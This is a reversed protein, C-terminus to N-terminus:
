SMTRTPKQRVTMVHRSVRRREPNLVHEALESDRDKQPKDKLLFVYDFRDLLSAVLDVQGMDDEYDDFRSHIPNGAALLSTECKLTANIGAKNIDLRQKELASHMSNVVDAPMKDIEDITAVGRHAKVLAGAELNWQGGAFDDQVASATLGAKTAGKGSASASRPSISEISSMLTSKGTSPDGILIGHSTGRQATGDPNPRRWGQFWHCLASALKIWWWKTREQGNYEVDEIIDTGYISPANSDVLLEFPDGYEGNAYAHIEDREEPSIDSVDLEDEHVEVADAELLWPSAGDDNRTNQTQLKGSFTVRSGGTVNNRALHKVLDGEVRVDIKAEGDGEGVEELPQELRLLQHDVAKSKEFDKTFPGKRECFDCQNPEKEESENLQPVMTVNECLICHWAIEKFNPQAETTKKVQGTISLYDGLHDSWYEGVSYTNEDNLNYVRLDIDDRDADCPVCPDIEEFVKKLLDKGDTHSHSPHESALM